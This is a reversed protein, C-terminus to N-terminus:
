LIGGAWQVEVLMEFLGRDRPLLLLNDPECQISFMDLLTIDNSFYSWNYEKKSFLSWPPSTTSFFTDNTFNSSSLIIVILKRKDYQVELTVVFHVPQKECQSKVTSLSQDSLVPLPPPAVFLYPPMYLKVGVFPPPTKAM